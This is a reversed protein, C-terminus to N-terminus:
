LIQEIIPPCSGIGFLRYLFGAFRENDNGPIDDWTFLEKKDDIITEVRRNNTRRKEKSIPRPIREPGGRAYDWKDAAYKDTDYSM